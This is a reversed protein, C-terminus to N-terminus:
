VDGIKKKFLTTKHDASLGYVSSPVVCRCRTVCRYRTVCVITDVESSVERNYVGNHTHELRRYNLCLLRHCTHTHHTTTDIACHFKYM